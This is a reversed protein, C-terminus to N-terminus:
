YTSAAVGTNRGGCSGREAGNPIVRIEPWRRRCEEELEPAYDIVLLTETPAVTQRRMSEVIEEISGLRDFTFATVIVSISPAVSAGRQNPQSPM